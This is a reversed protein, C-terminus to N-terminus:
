RTNHLPDIGRVRDPPLRPMYDYPIRTAPSVYTFAASLRAASALTLDAYPQRNRLEAMASCNINVTPQKCPIRGFVSLFDEAPPAANGDEFFNFPYNPVGYNAFMFRDGTEVVTSNMAFAPLSGNSDNAPAANVALRSLTLMSDLENNQSQDELSRPPKLGSARYCDVGIQNRRFAQELAWGRDFEQLKPFISFVFPAFIRLADPYAMGWAVAQLSSCRATTTTRLSFDQDFPRSRYYERLFSYSAVSGGSVSSFLLLHKHFEGDTQRELEALVSSTWLAAHIGGGTAAIVILPQPHDTPGQPYAHKYMIDAPSPLPDKATAAPVKLVHFLHEQPFFNALLFLGVITTLVPIRFRDLFFAVGALAWFPIALLLVLIGLVPMMYPSNSVV